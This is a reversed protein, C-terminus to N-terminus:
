QAWCYISRAVRGLSIEHSVHGILNVEFGARLVMVFVSLQQAGVASLRRGVILGDDAPLLLLM